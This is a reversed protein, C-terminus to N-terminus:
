HKVNRKKRGGRQEKHKKPNRPLRYNYKELLIRDAEEHHQDCLIDCKEIERLIDHVSMARSVMDAIKYLKEAPDRHHFELKLPDTTGCIKCGSLSKMERVWARLRARYEKKALM